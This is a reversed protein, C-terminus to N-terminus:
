WRTTLDWGLLVPDYFREVYIQHWLSFVILAWVQRWNVDHEGARYRHLLDLAAERDIWRDTQAEHLLDDAYGFWEGALWEGVPVPFGLKARETVSEPLVEAMAERLAFKTTGGATKEERSLRSAVTMVERDLFPARLELGHAMTMRDAKVLVDGPLWTNIDVLQMTSVDDLGAEAAQQYVPDTVDYATARGPRAVLDAQGDVFVHANGIYRRRLPTATRGLLGKGKVGPPLLAAAKHLPAKGWDPLREGARVLGPQHYVAYGGFLEDAGEGSLVVKVHRSAERAVFWLPVAAADAMPDDLHWIIRPLQTFFEEATIVYPISKVGIVAATEQASDIESYGQREFGATFTLLGPRSEAALACVAASDIGGSLFAGLPADSRLHVAVSDRLVDLIMPPTDVSPGGATHLEARWYRYTKIGRGPRVIMAHGPPLVRVPPTMTAPAPVYQFALYRRFADPDLAALEGPRALAKRESAFRFVDGAGPGRDAGGPAPGDPGGPRWGPDGTVYYFPKIGFPDRACFLQRKWTDWVAFAYMGRLKRVVDRGLLAYTELLVETDSGTRLGVGRALLARALEVCNYIEGDFVMWYRGDSSCMPQRCDPSPDIVALRRSGLAVDPDAYFGDDDPGRHAVSGAAARVWREDAVAEPGLALAGTIGGM